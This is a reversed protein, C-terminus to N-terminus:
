IIKEEEKKKKLIKSFKSIDYIIILSFPLVIVLGFGLPTVLFNRVFGLKPIM